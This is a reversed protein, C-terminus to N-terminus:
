SKPMGLIQLGSPGKIHLSGADVAIVVGAQTVDGVKLKAITGDKLRVLAALKDVPGVIGILSARHLPIGNKQTAWTEAKDMLGNSDSM